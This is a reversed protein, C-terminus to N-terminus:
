KLLSQIKLRLLPSSTGQLKNMPFTLGYKGEEFCLTASHLCNHSRCLHCWTGAILQFDVVNRNIPPFNAPFIDTPSLCESEGILEHLALTKKGYKDALKKQDLNNEDM